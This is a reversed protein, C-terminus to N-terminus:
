RCRAGPTASHKQFARPSHVHFIVAFMIVDQITPARGFTTGGSIVENLSTLGRLRLITQFISGASISNGSALCSKSLCM